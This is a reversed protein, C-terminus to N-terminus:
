FGKVVLEGIKLASDPMALREANEKMRKLTDGPGFLENIVDHIKNYDRVELAAGGAVLHETNMREQGPIPNVILMPLRKALTEATTMGGAKTIIIDSVEMLEEINEIYPFVRVLDNGSPILGTLRKYLRRNTGTVVLLQYCHERDGLFSRVVGEMDGLGQSGGMILVTPRESLLGYDARIRDKEHERRFGSDVPIGYIRIKEPPVGKQELIDASKKSPVVYIDVEDFLWYSHPAHDTLVGILPVNNGYTKKYDAVMGCPFAQTCYVGEPAFADLLRKMKPKNYKHLAERAKRAKKLVDPNDYINGWLDPKKKIIELYARTIIRGLVPNAYDFADIMEIGLSGDLELLANRIAEAARFHGSYRSIYFLLVQKSM